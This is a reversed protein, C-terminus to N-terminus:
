VKQNKVSARPGLGVGPHESHIGILSGFSKPIRRAPESEPCAGRKTPLFLRSSEITKGMLQRRIEFGLLAGIAPPVANGIQRHAENYSGLIEYSDPFTQLRCLERISLRRSKWHFPGTAPGPAAQITWSPKNKALKLLFSWYRTRWGFLPKGGSRETHWLYNEGEPISPILKAWKGKPDLDAPWSDTDLDGIADWCTLFTETSKKGALIEAQDCHTPPPACFPVGERHAIIFVRERRQPVGYDVCNIHLLQANYDTNFKKNISKLGRLLLQLGEDKGAYALGKVNELLVIEPLATEIIKLFSRLTKSRPDALRKADGNVWYGSKSFPQCPPGGALLTLEGSKSIGAQEMIEQPKLATIDGPEALKWNPRNQKLTARCGEDIEVCLSVDFGAAELGLDLGGAGTFLSISKLGKNKKITLEM